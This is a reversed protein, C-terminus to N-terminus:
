AVLLCRNQVEQDSTYVYQILLYTNKCYKKDPRAIDHIIDGIIFIFKFVTGLRAMIINNVM